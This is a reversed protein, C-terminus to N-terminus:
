PLEFGLGYSHREHVLVEGNGDGTVLFQGSPDFQISAVEDTHEHISFPRDERGPDWIHVSADRAGAAVRGTSEDVAFDTLFGVMPTLEARFTAVQALGPVRFLSLAGDQAFGIISRGAEFVRVRGSVNPAAFIQQGTALDWARAGDGAGVVLWSAPGFRVYQPQYQGLDFQWVPALTRANWVRVISDTGGAALFEGSLDFAIRSEATQAGITRVAPRKVTNDWVQTLTGTALTYVWVSGHEWLALRESSPDFALFQPRPVYSEGSVVQSARVERGDRTSVLVTGYRSGKRRPEDGSRYYASLAV